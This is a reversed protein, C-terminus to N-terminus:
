LSELLPQNPQISRLRVSNVAVMLLLLLYARLYKTSDQTFGTIKRVFGTHSSNNDNGYEFLAAELIPTIGNKQATSFENM